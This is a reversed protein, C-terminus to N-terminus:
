KKIQCIWWINKSRSGTNSLTFPFYTFYNAKKILKNSKNNIIKIQTTTTTQLKRKNVNFSVSM